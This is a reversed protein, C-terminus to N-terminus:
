RGDDVKTRTGRHLIEKHENREKCWSIVTATKIRYEVWMIVNILIYFKRKVEKKDPDDSSKLKQEHWKQHTIHADSKM